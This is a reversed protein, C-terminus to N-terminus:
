GGEMPSFMTVDDGDAIVDERKALEGNIGITVLDDDPIGLLELLGAATTGRPCTVQRTGNEAKAFYRRLDAFLTVRFAVTASERTGPSTRDM